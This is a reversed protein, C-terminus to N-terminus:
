FEGVPLAIQLKFNERSSVWVRRTRLQHYFVFSPYPGYSHRAKWTGRVKIRGLRHKFYSFVLNDMLPLRVV